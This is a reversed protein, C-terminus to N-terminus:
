GESWGTGWKCPMGIRILKLFHFVFMILASCKIFIPFCDHTSMLKIVNFLNFHNTKCCPMLNFSYYNPCKSLLALCLPVSFTESLFIAKSSIISRLYGTSDRTQLPLKIILFFVSSTLFNPYLYQSLPIRDHRTSPDIWNVAM